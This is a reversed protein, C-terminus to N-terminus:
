QENKKEKNLIKEKKYIRTKMHLNNKRLFYLWVKAM